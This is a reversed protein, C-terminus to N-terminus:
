AFTKTGRVVYDLGAVLSFVLAFYFAPLGVEWGLMIAPLAGMLLASSTKGIFSVSPQRGTRRQAAWWAAVMALDRGVLLLAAWLPPVGVVFYLGLVTGGIFIRDVLPDFAKGFDTITGYRRAVLGDVWDTLAAALYLAVAALVYGESLLALIAPLALLRLLTLLNAVSM